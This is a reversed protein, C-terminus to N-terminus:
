YPWINFHTKGVYSIWSKLEGLQLKKDSWNKEKFVIFMDNDDNAPKTFRGIQCAKIDFRQAIREDPYFISMMVVFYVKLLLM